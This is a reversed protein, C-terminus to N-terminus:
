LFKKLSFYEKWPYIHINADKALFLEFWTPYISILDMWSNPNNDFAWVLYTVESM